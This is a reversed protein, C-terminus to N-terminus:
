RQGVGLNTTYTNGLSDIANIHATTLELEDALHKGIMGLAIKYLTTSQREDLSSDDGFVERLLNESKGDLRGSLIRDWAIKAPTDRRASEVRVDESADKLFKLQGATLAYHLLTWGTDSADLRHRMEKCLYNSCAAYMVM